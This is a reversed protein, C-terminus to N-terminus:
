DVTFLNLKLKIAKYKELFLILVSRKILEIKNILKDSRQKTNILQTSIWDKRTTCSRDRICM